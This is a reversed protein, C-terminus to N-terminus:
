IWVTIFKRKYAKQYYDIRNKILQLTKKDDDSMRNKDMASELDNIFKTKQEDFVKDFKETDRISFPNFLQKYWTWFRWLTRLSSKSLVYKIWRTSDNWIKNLKKITKNIRNRSRINRRLLLQPWTLVTQGNINHSSVLKFGIRKTKLKNIEKSDYKPLEWTFKDKLGKKELALKKILAKLQKIKEEDWSKKAEKLKELNDSNEKKNQELEKELSSIKGLLEENEGESNSLKTKLDLIEKDKNKEYEKRNEEIERRKELDEKDVEEGTKKDLALKVIQAIDYKEKAVAFNKFSKLEKVSYDESIKQVSEPTNTIWEFKELSIEEGSTKVINSGVIEVM